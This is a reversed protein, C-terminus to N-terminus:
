LLKLNSTRNSPSLVVKLQSNKDLPRNETSEALDQLKNWIEDIKPQNRKREELFAAAENMWYSKDASM